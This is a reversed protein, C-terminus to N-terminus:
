STRRALSGSPQPFEEKMTDSSTSVANELPHTIQGPAMGSGDREYATQPNTTHHMGHFDLDQLTRDPEPVANNLSYNPM